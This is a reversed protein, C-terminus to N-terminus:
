EVAVVPKRCMVFGQEPPLVPAPGSSAIGGIAFVVGLVIGVLSSSWGGGPRLDQWTDSLLLLTLLVFGALSQQPGTGLAFVGKPCEMVGTLELRVHWGAVALGGVALPLALASLAAARGAGTFLGIALVGLVGFAFTRQYYCLPCAKYGMGLSLWLSGVVVVM